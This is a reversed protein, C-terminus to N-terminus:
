FRDRYHTLIGFEDIGTEYFNASSWKYDEPRSVLNWHEQLPNLHIYNLKQEFKNQYDMHVALPDRLWFRHNREEMKEKYAPIENSSHTVRLYDLFRHSTYKNFSAHPMEKGNMGAMEWLVHLHNPMIVFGYVIIKNRRVLERWCEMIITKCSDETLLNKWDKITNTWFYIEHLFMKSNRFGYKIERDTLDLM